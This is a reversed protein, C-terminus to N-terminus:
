LRRDLHELFSHVVHHRNELNLSSTDATCCILHRDLNTGVSALRKSKAPQCHVGTLSALLCHFFPQSILDEVCRVVCAASHLSFFIHVLHCLCVLRKSVISEL